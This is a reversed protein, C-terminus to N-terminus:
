NIFKRKMEKDLTDMELSLKVETNKASNTLYMEGLEKIKKNDKLMLIMEELWKEEEISISTQLMSLKILEVLVELNIVLMVLNKLLFMNMDQYQFMM